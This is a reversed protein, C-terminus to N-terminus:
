ILTLQEIIQNDKAPMPKIIEREGWMRTKPATKKKQTNFEVAEDDTKNEQEIQELTELYRMIEESHNSYVKTLINVAKECEKTIQVSIVEKDKGFFTYTEPDNYYRIVEKAAMVMRPTLFGSVFLRKASKCRSLAVYLQGDQFIEPIFNMEDYTQGQAKHVTVAYGLKMPYQTAKGIEELSLENTSVTMEEGRENTVKNKVEKVRYEYKKFEYPKVIVETPTAEEGDDGKRDIDVIIGNDKFGKITGMSGNQYLGNSDNILMLVRAGEKYCFDQECLNDKPSCEGSYSAMNHKEIGDLQSLKKNNIDSATKNKGCVWIANPLESKATNRLFFDLCGNDGIKCMDLATCFDKDGAQRKIETLKEFQINLYYWYKSQFAFGNGIDMGYYENLAEKDAPPIVPALQCFDGVLIVQLNKKKFQRRTKNSIDIYNMVKDFIDIRVMSIEDILIVDANMLTNNLDASLRTERALLSQIDTPLRFLKHLTVGKINCAAIGTPAAKLINIKNEECWETFADVLFSKGTGANGTLFINEGAIMRQFIRRQEEGLRDRYYASM